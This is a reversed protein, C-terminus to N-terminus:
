RQSGDGGAGGLVVGAAFGGASGTTSRSSAHRVPGIRCQNAGFASNM